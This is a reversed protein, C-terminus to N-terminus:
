IDLFRYNLSSHSAKVQSSTIKSSKVKSSESLCGTGNKMYYTAHGKFPYPLINKPKDMFVVSKHVFANLLCLLSTFDLLLGTCKVLM